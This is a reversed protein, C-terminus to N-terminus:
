PVWEFHPGDLFDKGPHRNKYDAVVSSYVEKDGGFDALTRDWVAGWRIHHEIGMTHAAQDMAMAIYYCGEWDWVPHGDIWPVLDTAHGFGDPQRLHKSDLTKSVGRQVNIRQQALARLGEYVTFDQSTLTIALRVCSALPQIVGDLNAISKAGLAFRPKPVPVSIAKTPSDGLMTSESAASYMGGSTFHLLDNILTLPLPKADLRIDNLKAALQSQTVRSDTM